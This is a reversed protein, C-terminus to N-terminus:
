HAGKDECYHRHLDGCHGGRNCNATRTILKSTIPFSPHVCSFFFVFLIRCSMCCVNFLLGEHVWHVRVTAQADYQFNTWDSGGFTNLNTSFISTNFAALM